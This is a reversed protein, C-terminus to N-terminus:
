ISRFIFTVNDGMHQRKLEAEVRAFGNLEESSFYRDIGENMENQAIGKKWLESFKCWDVVNSADRIVKEIRLGSRQAVLFMSRISYLFFHQPAQILYCNERYRRYLDEATPVTLLLVGDSNLRGRIATLTEVPNPVHEFSHHSLIIDYWGTVQEVFMKRIIVGNPYAIDNEIFPDIGSVNLFGIERLDNIHSGIGCGVDLIRACVTAYDRIICFDSPLPSITNLVRGLLGGSNFIAYRNRIRRMESKLYSRKPAIFSGYQSNSYYESLGEPIELIQM